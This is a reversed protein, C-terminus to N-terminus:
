SDKEDTNRMSYKKTDINREQLWHHTEGSIVLPTQQLGEITEVGLATMILTLDEHM